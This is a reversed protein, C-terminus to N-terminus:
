KSGSAMPARAGGPNAATVRWLTNGLDDAILLGGQMDMAVGVPRGRARGKADLFGSVVNYPKGVPRGNRFAVFDVKYGNFQERDWSGHQAVFAGNRFRQPLTDGRSFTMGLPAVHSSLAYDPPTAKAVMDPRQPRVRPDVHQGYYSYPWGYFAGPRVSTMYDPVLNPGLEDRENVVVWLANTEPNISLGNPNRLGTAYPRHAGTARDIEWVQARDLEADIGNETINSNSGVGVYLKTGDPSATMSKTWHHDITGAPLQVLTTGPQTITTQGTVYPYRVVADTNAVYLDNGVLVIGFPSNLNELFVTRLEPAGDGDADRLLTVRNGGEAGAGAYNQVLNMIYEKPRKVPAPPGNAEVVLIDGNPLAYPQRPHIMDTALATIRLGEAVDPTEGPQWGIPKAVRMPPLLYQQQAPLVPNPGIQTERDFSASGDNCGALGLLAASLVVASSIRRM